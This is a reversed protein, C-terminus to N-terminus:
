AGLKICLGCKLLHRPLASQRLTPQLTRANLSSPQNAPATNIVVVAHPIRIERSLVTGCDIKGCREDAGVQITGTAFSLEQGEGGADTTWKETWWYRLRPSSDRYIRSEITPM